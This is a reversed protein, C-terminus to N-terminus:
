KTYKFPFTITSTIALTQDGAMCNPLLLVQFRTTESMSTYKEAQPCVTIAALFCFYMKFCLNSLYSIFFYKQEVPKSFHFIVKLKRHINM